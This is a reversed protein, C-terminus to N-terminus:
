PVILVIQPPARNSWLSLALFYHVPILSPRSINVKPLQLLWFTLTLQLDTVNSSPSSCSFCFSLPINTMEHIFITATLKKLPALPELYWVKTSTLVHSVTKFNESLSIGFSQKKFIHSVTQVMKGKLYKLADKAISAIQLWIKILIALFDNQSAM